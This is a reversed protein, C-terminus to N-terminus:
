PYPGHKIRWNLWLTFGVAIVVFSVAAIVWPYRAGFAQLAKGIVISIVLAALYFLIM